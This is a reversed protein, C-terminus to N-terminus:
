GLRRAERIRQARLQLLLFNTEIIEFTREARPPFISDLGLQTFMQQEQKGRLWTWFGLLGLAVRLATASVLQLPGGPSFPPHAGHLLSPNAALAAKRCLLEFIKGM